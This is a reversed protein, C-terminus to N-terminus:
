GSRSRALAGLQMRNSVGLKTYVHSLHHKVTGRSIFMRASIEPNTLGEAVLEALSTEVPTLSEWGTEPRSPTRRGRRAYDIAQELSLSDGEAWAAACREPGLRQELRARAPGSGGADPPLRVIGLAQCAAGAAALLRAGREADGTTLALEGLAQLTDIADPRLQHEANAALASHLRQYARRNDGALLAACGEAWDAVAIMRVNGTSAGISRLVATHALVANGGRALAIRALVEYWQAATYVHPNQCGLEAREQANDLRGLALEAWAVSIEIAAEALALGARRPPALEQLGRELAHRADGLLARARVQHAVALHRGISRHEGELELARECHVLASYPDGQAIDAWALANEIWSLLWPPQDGPLAAFERCTGRLEGFRDAMGDTLALNALAFALGDADGEARLIEVAQHGTVAAAGADVSRQAQGAVIMWRGITRRDGSAQALPLAEEAYVRAQGFDEELAALLAAAWLVQARSRPDGDPAAALVRACAARAEGSSDHILWWHGLDAALALATSPDDSVAFDLAARLQPTEAELRRRGPQGAVLADADADAAVRRFHELHRRRIALEEGAERLRELAYDRVTELMRYRLEDGAEVAFILGRDALAAVTDLAAAREAEGDCCVSELSSLTWDGAIALRRLLSRQRDDLLDYSWQLSGVLTRQREPATRPGGGALRLRNTLENAIQAASLVRVRAAALEIALPLGDLERCITAVQAVNDPGLAFRPRSRQARDVFLRGADSSAVSSILDAADPDPLSLPPAQWVLEGDIGLPQRSTALVRLGECRRLLHVCAAGVADVLHECNDLILLVDHGGLARAVTDLTPVGGTFASSPDISRIAENLAPPIRQVSDLAALEVIFVEASGAASVRAAATLALRTKGVGGVGTITLARAVGLARDLESLEAERGVLPTLPV